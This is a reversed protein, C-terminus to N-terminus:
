WWDANKLKTVPNMVYLGYDVCVLKGNLIGFNDVKLDTLFEPVKKPLKFNSPVKDCKKQLLIRGDPSIFECPALWKRVDPMESYSNWFNYEFVNAFGRHEETEVKVVLDKRITCDFVQRNIGEGLKKGCLLNFCDEFHNTM